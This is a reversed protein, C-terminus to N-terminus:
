MMAEAELREGYVTTAVATTLAFRTFIAALVALAAVLWLVAVIIFGDNRRAAAEPRVRDDRLM